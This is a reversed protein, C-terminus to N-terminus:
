SKGTDGEDNVREQSAAMEDGNGVDCEDFIEHTVKSIKNNQQKTRQRVGGSNVWWLIM